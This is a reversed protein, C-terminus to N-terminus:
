PFMTLDKHVKVYHLCQVEKIEAGPGAWGPLHLSSPPLSSGAAGPPPVGAHRQNSRPTLHPPLDTPPERDELKVQIFRSGALPTLRAPIGCREQHGCRHGQKQHRPLPQLSHRTRTTKDKGLVWEVDDVGEGRDRGFLAMSIKVRWLTLSDELSVRVVPWTIDDALVNHAVDQM